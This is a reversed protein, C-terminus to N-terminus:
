RFFTVTVRYAVLVAFNLCFGFWWFSWSIGLSNFIIHFSLITFNLM